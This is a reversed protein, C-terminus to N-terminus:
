PTAGNRDDAFDTAEVLDALDRLSQVIQEPSNGILVFGDLHVAAREDGQPNWRHAMEVMATGRTDVHITPHTLRM